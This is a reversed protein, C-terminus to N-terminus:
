LSYRVGPQVEDAESVGARFFIDRTSALLLYEKFSSIWLPRNQNRIWNFKGNELILGAFSFPSNAIWAAWDQNASIKKVLIEGDNATYYPENFKEWKDPSAQSIVGNFVVAIDGLMIPQNNKMEKFDGSTSYRTHGILSCPQGPILEADLSKRLSQIDNFKFTPLGPKNITFGVAHKGRIQSEQFIRKLCTIQETTVSESRFGIVGCM